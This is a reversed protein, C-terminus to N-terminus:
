NMSRIFSAYLMNDKKWFFINKKLLIFNSHYNRSTKLLYYILLCFTYNQSIYIKLARDFKYPRTLIM